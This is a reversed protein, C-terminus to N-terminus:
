QLLKRDPIRIINKVETLGDELEPVIWPNYPKKPAYAKEIKKYATFFDGFRPEGYTKTKALLDAAKWCLKRNLGKINRRWFALLEPTIEKGSEVFIYTLLKILEAQKEKENM